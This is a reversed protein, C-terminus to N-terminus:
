SITHRDLGYIAHAGYNLTFGSKEYTFARGGLQPSREFLVGEIGPQDSLYAAATLGALGGGIIAVRMMNDEKAGTTWRKEWESAENIHRIGAWAVAMRRRLLASLSEDEDHMWSAVTGDYVALLFDAKDRDGLWRILEATVAERLRAQMARLAP